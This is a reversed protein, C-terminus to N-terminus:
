GRAPRIRGKGLLWLQRAALLGAMAAVMAPFGQDTLSYFIALLAGMRLLFSLTLRLRPRRAAAIHRVTLWLGGFYLTGAVAGLAFSAAILAVEATM